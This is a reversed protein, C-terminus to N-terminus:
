ENDQEMADLRYAFYFVSAVSIAGYVLWKQEPTTSFCIFDIAFAALNCWFMAIMWPKSQLFTVVKKM